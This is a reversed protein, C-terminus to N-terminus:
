DGPYSATKFKALVLDHICSATYTAVMNMRTEDGDIFAQVDKNTRILNLANEFRINTLNEKVFFM